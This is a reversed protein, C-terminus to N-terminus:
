VWLVTLGMKGRSKVVCRIESSLPSNAAQGAGAAGWGM